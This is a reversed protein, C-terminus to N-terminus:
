FMSWSTLAAHSAAVPSVFSHEYSATAAALGPLQTKPANCFAM